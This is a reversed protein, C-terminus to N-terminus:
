RKLNILVELLENGTQFSKSNATYDRQAIIMETLESALDVNSQELAGSLITGSGGDGALTMLLEGADLSLSFATGAEPSLNDPSPVTALPIQYFAARTGNDYQAYVIGDTDIIVRDVVAPANGDVEVEIPTYDAALFTTRSLDFVIDATFNPLASTAVTLPSGGTLNGFADFTLATPPGGNVSVDYGTIPPGGTATFTFDLTFPAGLDDFVVVSSTFADGTGATSPLNATFTGTTTPQANFSLTTVDVPVLGDFSNLNLPPPGGASIDYALLTYGAANVLHGTEGDVVFNGARTLFEQDNSQVVFFGEGQVALDTGSTTFTLPGQQGIARRITTEVVGSSYVNAGSDIVLASFEASARKYGTTSNNAVNDAIAGLKNSQANLGSVGTRLVNYLSM